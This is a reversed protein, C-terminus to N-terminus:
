DTRGLIRDQRLEIVLGIHYCGRGCYSQQPTHYRPGLYLPARCFGCPRTFWSWFRTIPNM